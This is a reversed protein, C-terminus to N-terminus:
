HVETTQVKCLFLIYKKIVLFLPQSARYIVYETHSEMQRLASLLRALECYNFRVAM